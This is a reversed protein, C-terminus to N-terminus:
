SGGMSAGARPRASAQPGGRDAAHADPGLRDASDADTGQRHQDAMSGRTTTSPPPAEAQFIPWWICCGRRPRVLRRRTHMFTPVIAPPVQIVQPWPPVMIRTRHPAPPLPRNRQRIRDPTRTDAPPTNITWPPDFRRGHRVPTGAARQRSQRLPPAQTTPCGTFRSRRVPRAAPRRAALVPPIWTPAVPTVPAPLVAFYRGRRAAALNLRHRVVVQPVFAPAVAVAPASPVLLFRGRRVVPLWRSRARPSGSPAPVDQPTATFRGRRLWGLRPRDHGISDPPRPPAAIVPAPVFVWFRGRRLTPAYRPRPGAQDLYGPPPAPQPVQFTIGRRPRPYRWRRSM